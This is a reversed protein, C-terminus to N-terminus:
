PQGEPWGLVLHLSGRELVDATGPEWFPSRDLLALYSGAPQHQFLPLFKAPLPVTSSEL